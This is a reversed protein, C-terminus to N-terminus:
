KIKRANLVEGHSDDPNIEQFKCDDPDNDFINIADDASKAEVHYILIDRKVVTLEYKPM